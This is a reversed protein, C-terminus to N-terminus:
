ANGQKRARAEIATAPVVKAVNGDVKTLLSPSVNWHRGDETIVTVTKKNYKTLVGYVSSGGNDQFTVKEGVRFEMMAAHAKLQQMMKLREVIRRNLDILEPESFKNIDVKMKAEVGGVM